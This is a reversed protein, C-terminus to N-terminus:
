ENEKYIFSTLKVDRIHEKKKNWLALLAVLKQKKKKKLHFVNGLGKAAM